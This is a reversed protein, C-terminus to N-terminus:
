GSEITMRERGDVWPVVSDDLLRDRQDLLVVEPPQLEVWRGAVVGVIMAEPRKVFVRLLVVQRYQRV